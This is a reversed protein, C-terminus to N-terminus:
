QKNGLLHLFVQTGPILFSYLLFLPFRATPPEGNHSTDLHREWTAHPYFHPTEFTDPRQHTITPNLIRHQSQPGGGTYPYGERFTPLRSSICLAAKQRDETLFQKEETIGSQCAVRDQLLWIHVSIEVFELAFCIKGRKVKPKM